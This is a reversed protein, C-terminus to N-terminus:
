DVLGTKLNVTRFYQKDEDSCSEWFDRFETMVVPKEHTSFYKALIAVSNM